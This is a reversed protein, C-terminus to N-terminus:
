YKLTFQDYKKLAHKKGIEEHFVGSCYSCKIAPVNPAILSRHHHDKHENLATVGIFIRRCLTCNQFILEDPHANQKHLQVKAKNHFRRQCFNCPFPRSSNDADIARGEADTKIKSNPTTGSFSTSPCASSSNDKEPTKPPRGIRKGKKTFHNM